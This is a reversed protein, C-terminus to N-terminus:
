NKIFKNQYTKNETKVKIIYIGSQLNHVKLYPQSDTQTSIKEGLLNYVEISEITLSNDIELHLIDSVPNPYMSITDQSFSEIALSTPCVIAIPVNTQNNSSNGLLGAGNNAGWVRLSGNFKLATTHSFGGDFIIHWDTDSNVPIPSTQNNTTNNGIQGYFNYGWTWLTGDTKVAMSHSVGAKIVFWGTSVLLQTPISLNNFTGNGVQGASNNGWGWLSTDFKIAISHEGGAAIAFWDTGSGIQTPISRNILTGDGLQGFNNKGWAWLTGTTKTALVHGGTASILNWNTASGIQTPTNKNIITGDGLQGYQNDGWAWFTGTTKTAITFGSGGDINQWNTATGIQTPVNKNVITGDGLQGSNNNGWTWLTGDTKLAISHNQGVAVKQWNTETGIQTPMIRLIGITGDGIQGFNNSGWAWLTGDNKIALNHTNSSAIAQWCQAKTNFHILFAVLIIIKTKM